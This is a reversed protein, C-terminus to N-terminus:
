KLCKIWEKKLIKVIKDSAGMEGKFVTTRNQNRDGLMIIQEPKLWLPAEYYACSSNTIFRKCNKLLGLFQERPLNEYTPKIFMKVMWPDSNPGIIITKKDVQFDPLEAYMTTPNYLVLDYDQNKPVLSIDVEIDDIHTHGVIHANTEKDIQALLRTTTELSVKDECLQINSYLTIVHRNIDDFTSLPYNLIGAGYHIIIVEKDIRTHFVGATAGTVEIRDGIVLFMDPKEVMCMNKATAYAGRFSSPVLSLIFVEFLPDAKLRKIIPDVLGFDSRNSRTIM